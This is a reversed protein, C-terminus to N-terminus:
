EMEHAFSYKDLRSILEKPDGAVSWRLVLGRYEDRVAECRKVVVGCAVAEERFVSEMEAMVLAPKFIKGVGTTPLSPVIHVRKPLAAKEAGTQRAHELGEEPSAGVGPRLQVYIVPIEGAHSGPRGVAAALAV